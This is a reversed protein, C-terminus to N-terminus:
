SGDNLAKRLRVLGRSALTKVAGPRCGLVQAIDAESWDAWYRLVLVARQRYPLAALLDLMERAPLSVDGPTHLLFRYRRDRDRRRHEDTCLNVVTTRLYAASNELVGVRTHLRVFAEQAVDEALELSSTLAYALRVARPYELEYLETFPSPDRAPPHVERQPALHGQVRGVNTSVHSAEAQNCM